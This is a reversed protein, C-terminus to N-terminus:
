ENIEDYFNLFEKSVKEPTLALMCKFHKKPCKSKGIHSCPRCNLSNNEIVISKSKYPAFGFEKVTSGFIAATPTRVATALHMLGSDNCIVAECKEMERALAFLDNDNSCDRSNPIESVIRSCIERDSKGGLLIIEFGKESLIKGLRIFYEVPYQKTFHQSGPCFGIRKSVANNTAKNGDDLYFDLGSEDLIFNESISKAYFEPISKIRKLTNIKFHVLLFKEITPKVFKISPIKLEKVIQKSRLNNQLDIVFDFNQSKLDAITRKGKDEKSYLFVNELNPNFRVADAFTDQVLFSLSKEPFKEKLGRIVPTTLLVDGLSSIRIILVKKASSFFQYNEYNNSKMAM